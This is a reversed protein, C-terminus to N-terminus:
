KVVKKRFFERKKYVLNALPGPVLWNAVAFLKAHGTVIRKRFGTFNLAKIVEKAVDEPAVAIGHSTKKRTQEDVVPLRNGAKDMYRLETKVFGPEVLLTSVGREKFEYRVSEYFGRLAFKTAVYASRDMIGLEGLISGIIVIKGRSEELSPLAAYLTNLTGFFNTDFVQRYDDTTLNRFAGPVTFGANAVLLDLRGLEQAADQVAAKLAEGDRIDCAVALARRGHEKEIRAKLDDLRDQRRGFLAVDYGAQALALALAQGIGSSAGTVLVTKHPSTSM